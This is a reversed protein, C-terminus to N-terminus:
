FLFVLTIHDCFTSDFIWRFREFVVMADDSRREVTSRCLDEVWVSQAGGIILSFLCWDVLHFLSVLNTWRICSSTPARGAFHRIHIPEESKKRRGDFANAVM